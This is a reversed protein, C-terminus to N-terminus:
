AAATVAAADASHELTADGGVIGRGAGAGAAEVGRRTGELDRGDVHRLPAAASGAAGAGGDVAGLALDGHADDVQAGFALTSVEIEAHLREGLDGLDGSAAHRDGPLQDRTGDATVNLISVFLAARLVPRRNLYAVM